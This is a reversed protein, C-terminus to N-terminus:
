KKSVQQKEIPMSEKEPITSFLCPPYQSIFKLNDM